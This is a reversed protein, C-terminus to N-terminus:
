SYLIPYQSLLRSEPNLTAFENVRRHFLLIWTAYNFILVLLVTDVEQIVHKFHCRVFLDSLKLTFLYRHLFVMKDTAIQFNPSLSTSSLPDDNLLRTAIGRMLAFSYSGRRASYISRRLPILNTTQSVLNKRWPYMCCIILSLIKLSFLALSNCIVSLIRYIHKM